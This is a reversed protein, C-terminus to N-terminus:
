DTDPRNDRLFRRDANLTHEDKERLLAARNTPPFAYLRPKQPSPISVDIMTM